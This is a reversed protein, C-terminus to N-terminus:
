VCNCVCVETDVHMHALSLRIYHFFAPFCVCKTQTYVINQAKYCELKCARQVCLRMSPLQTHSTDSYRTYACAHSPSLDENFSSCSHLTLSWIPHAPFPFRSLPPFSLFSPMLPPPLSSSIFTFSQCINVNLVPKSYLSTCFTTSCSALSTALLMCASVYVCLCMYQICAHAWLCTATTNKFLIDIFTNVHM